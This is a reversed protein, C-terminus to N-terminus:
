FNIYFCFLFSVILNKESPLRYVLEISELMGKPDVALIEDTAKCPRSAGLRNLARVRYSYWQGEQLGTVQCRFVVCLM